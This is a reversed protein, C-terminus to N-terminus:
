NSDRGRAPFHLPPAETVTPVTASVELLEASSEQGPLLLFLPRSLLFSHEDESHPISHLYCAGAERPLPNSGSYPLSRPALLAPTPM